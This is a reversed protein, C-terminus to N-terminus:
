PLGLKEHDFMKSLQFSACFVRTRVRISTSLQWSINVNYAQEIVNIWMKLTLMFICETVKISSSLRWRIFICRINVQHGRVLHELDFMPFTLLESITFGACFTKWLNQCKRWRIVSHLINHETVKDMMKWTWYKRITCLGLLHTTAFSTGAVKGSIAHGRATFNSKNLTGHWNKDEREGTM